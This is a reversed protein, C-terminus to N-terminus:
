GNCWGRRRSRGDYARAFGERVLIVALERGQLDRVVALTRRYRDRGHRELVIGSAILQALRAQAARAARIETPCRGRMEPADLGRIRIREAGCRLTDGDTAVCRRQALVHVPAATLLAALALATTIM